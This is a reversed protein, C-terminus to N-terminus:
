LGNKLTWIPCFWHMWLALIGFRILGGLEEDSARIQYSLTPWGFAMCALDYIILFLTVAYLILRTM